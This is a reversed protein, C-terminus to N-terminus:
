NGTHTENADARKAALAQAIEIRWQTPTIKWTKCDNTNSGRQALAAWLETMTREEYCAAAFPTLFHNEAIFLGM